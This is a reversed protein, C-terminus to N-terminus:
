ACSGPGTAAITEALLGELRVLVAEVRPDDRREEVTRCAHAATTRDRGFARGVDSFSAGVAVHALYMATQRAFAIEASRRRGRGLAAPPV